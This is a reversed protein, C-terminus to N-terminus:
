VIEKARDHIDGIDEAPIRSVTGMAQNRRYDLVGRLDSRCFLTQEGFANRWEKRGSGFM